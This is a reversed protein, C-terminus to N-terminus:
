REGWRAYVARKSMGLALAIQSWSYDMTANLAHAARLQELAVVRDLKVLEALALVDGSEARRSLGRIMRAVAAGVESAERQRRTTVEPTVASGGNERAQHGTGRVGNPAMSAM